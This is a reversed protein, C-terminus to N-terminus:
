WGANPDRGTSRAPDYSLERFGQVFGLTFSLSVLGPLALGVGSGLEFTSIRAVLFGVAAGVALFGFFYLLWRTALDIEGAGM